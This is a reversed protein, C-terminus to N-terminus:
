RSWQLLNADIFSRIPGLRLAQTLDGCAKNGPGQSWVTMGVLRGEVSLFPGGSDGTCGGRGRGDPDKAWILLKSLPERTVLRASRLTGGTKGEQEQSLGFGSIIFATGAEVRADYDIAITTFRPPLDRDLRLMALDVSRERTKEANPRFSPHIVIEKTEILSDPSAGVWWAAAAKTRHVCHAATALVDRALVVATCFGRETILMVLSSEAPSGPQAPGTIANAPLSWTVIVLALTLRIILIIREIKM